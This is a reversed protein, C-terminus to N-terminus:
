LLPFPCAPSRPEAETKEVSRPHATEGGQSETERDGFWSPAPLSQSAVSNMANPLGSSFGPVPSTRCITTFLSEATFVTGQSMRHPLESIVKGRGLSLPISLDIKWYIWCNQKKKGEVKSQDKGAKLVRQQTPM